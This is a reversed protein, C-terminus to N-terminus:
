RCPPMIEDPSFQCNMCCTSLGSASGDKKKLFKSFCLGGPKFDKSCQYLNTILPKTYKNTTSGKMNTNHRWHLTHEARRYPLVAEYRLEVEKPQMIEIVSPARKRM